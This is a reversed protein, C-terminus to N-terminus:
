DSTGRTSRTRPTPLRHRPGTSTVAPTSEDSARQAATEHMREDPARWSGEFCAKRQNHQHAEECERQARRCDRRELGEDVTHGPTNRSPVVTCQRVPARPLRVASRASAEDRTLYATSPMEQALGNARTERRRACSADAEGLAYKAGLPARAQNAANTGTRVAADGDCRFPTSEL